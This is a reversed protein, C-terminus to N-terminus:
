EGNVRCNCSQVCNASEHMLASRIDPEDDNRLFIGLCSVRSLHCPHINESETERGGEKEKGKDRGEEAGETEIGFM